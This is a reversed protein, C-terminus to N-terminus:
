ISLRCANYAVQPGSLRWGQDPPKLGENSNAIIHRKRIVGFAHPTYQKTIGFLEM